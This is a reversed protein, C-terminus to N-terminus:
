PMRGHHVPFPWCRRALEAAAREALATEECTTRAVCIENRGVRRVTFAGVEAWVRRTGPAVESGDAAFSRSSEHERPLQEPRLVGAALLAQAQGTYREGWFGDNGAVLLPRAVKRVGPAFACSAAHMITASM